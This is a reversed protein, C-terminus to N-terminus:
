ASVGPGSLEDVFIVTVQGPGQVGVTLSMEIDATRSPGTMFSAYGGGARGAIRRLLDPTSELSPLLDATPVLVINHLTMLSAARDALEREDLLISGTEAIAGQGLTLGVAADRADERRNITRAEIGAGTLSGILEGARGVLQPSVAVSSTGAGAAIEAIARAATTSDPVHDVATGLPTARDAFQAILVHIHDLDDDM